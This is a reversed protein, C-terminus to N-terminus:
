SLIKVCFFRSIAETCFILINIEALPPVQEFFKFAVGWSDLLVVRLRSQTFLEKVDLWGEGAVTSPSTRLAM